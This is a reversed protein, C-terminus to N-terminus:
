KGTQNDPSELERKWKELLERKQQDNLGLFDMTAVLSKASQAKRRERILGRGMRFNYSDGRPM